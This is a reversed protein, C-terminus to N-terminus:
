INEASVNIMIKFFPEKGADVMQFISPIDEFGFHHTVIGETCITGKAMLRIMDRYDQPIYMTTGSLRLEHQVFDPLLPVDTGSQLVGVVVIRTGRRAISLIQNLVRGKGGVCDYFVDVAKPDGLLRQLGEELTTHATNIVGDAGCRLALELRSEVLDAIIVKRAGLAKCSQMAFNGIPGAGIVLVTDQRTLDGRKAAHYSVCAPELLAAQELSMDAPLALTMEAPVCLYECHAGNAEAGMCRLKECFNTVHERCPRCVGCVLHPIVAVRAGEKPSKVGQGRAVVRGAFEHGMVLPSIAYPHLGHYITPDSGCVGCHTVRILVEDKGPSPIAVTQREITGPKKLVFRVM